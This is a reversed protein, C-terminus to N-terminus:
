NLIIQLGFTIVTILFLWGVTYFFLKVSETKRNEIYLLIPKGLVLSGTTTASVVFLLLFAMPGFVNDMRGFIRDGNHMLVSILTTYVVVGIAHLFARFEINKM